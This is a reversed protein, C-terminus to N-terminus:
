DVYMLYVVEILKMRMFLYFCMVKVGGNFMTVSTVTRIVANTPPKQSLVRFYLCLIFDDLYCMLLALIVKFVYFRQWQTSDAKKKLSQCKL